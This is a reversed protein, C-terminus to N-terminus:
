VKCNVFICAVHGFLEKTHYTCTCSRCVYKYDLKIEIHALHVAPDNEAVTTQIENQKSVEVDLRIKATPALVLVFNLLSLHRQSRSRHHRLQFIGSYKSM